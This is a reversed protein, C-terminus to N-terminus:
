GTSRHFKGALVRLVDQYWNKTKSMELPATPFGSLGLCRASCYAWQHLNLALPAMMAPTSNSKFVVASQNPKQLVEGVFLDYAFVITGACRSATDAHSFSTMNGWVGSQSDQFCYYLYCVWLYLYAHVIVFLCFHAMIWWNIACMRAYMYQFLCAALSV